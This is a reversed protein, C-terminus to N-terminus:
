ESGCVSSKEPPPIPTGGAARATIGDFGVILADTDSAKLLEGSGNASVRGCSGGPGGGTTISQLFGDGPGESDPRLIVSLLVVDDRRLGDAIGGPKCTAERGAAVAKDAGEKTRLDAGPAYSKTTGATVATKSNRVNVVYDGDTFLILAKCPTRDLNAEVDAAHASLASRAGILANVIDTEIGNVKKGFTKMSTRITPATQEDLTTWPLAVRYRDSFAAVELDVQTRTAAPGSALEILGDLANVAADVRLAKPDTETLSRSEDFVFTVALHKSGQICGALTLLGGGGESSVSSSQNAADPETTPGQAAAVTPCLLALCVAVVVAGCISRHRRVRDVDPAKM